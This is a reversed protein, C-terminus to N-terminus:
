RKRAPSTWLKSPTKARNWATYAEVTGSGKSKRNRNEYDEVLALDRRHKLRDAETHSMFPRWALCRAKARITAAPAATGLWERANALLDPTVPNHAKEMTVRSAETRLTARKLAVMAKKQAARLRSVSRKHAALEAKAKGRTKKEARLAAQLAAKLNAM